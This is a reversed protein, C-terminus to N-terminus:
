SPQGTFLSLIWQPAANAIALAKAALQQKSQAAQLKASEEAMDADVLDGVGKELDNTLVSKQQLENDLRQAQRGLYAATDLTTSMAGSVAQLISDPNSWNLSDLGLGATTLNRARLSATPTGNPTDALAYVDDYVPGTGAVQPTVVAGTSPLPASPAQLTLNAITWANASSVGDDVVFTLDQGNAPDYDFSLTNAGSVPGINALDTPDTIPGGGQTYPVGTAAVLAGDQFVQLSNASAYADFTLDVRGANPGGDITYVTQAGADPSGSEPSLAPAGSMDDESTESTQVTQDIPTMTTSPPATPLPSGSPQLSLGGVTWGASPDPDNENFKFTIPGNAPDYDFSITNQGTVPQGSAVGGTNGPTYPQDSAAVRVGNQYIDVTDPSNGADFQLDVRGANPGGDLTYSAQGNTPPAGATEMNLTAGPLNSPDSVSQVPTSYSGPLGPAPAGPAVRPMGLFAYPQGSPNTISYNLPQSPDYLFSLVQQGSQATGAGVSAGQAGLAQGSAAVRVGNAWIEYDESTNFGDLMVDMRASTPPPPAPPPPTPLARQSFGLSGTVVPPWYTSTSGSSLSSMHSQVFSAPTLPSYAYGYATTNIM